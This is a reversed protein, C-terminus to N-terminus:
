TSLSAEFEFAVMGGTWRKKVLGMHSNKWTGSTLVEPLLVWHRGCVAFGM